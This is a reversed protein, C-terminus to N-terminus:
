HLCGTNTVANGLDVTFVCQQNQSCGTSHVSVAVQDLCSGGWSDRWTWQWPSLYLGRISGCCSRQNMFGPLHSMQYFDGNYLKNLSSSSPFFLSKAKRKDPHKDESMNSHFQSCPCLPIRVGWSQHSAATVTNTPLYKEPHLFTVFARGIQSLVM